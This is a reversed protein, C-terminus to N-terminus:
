PYTAKEHNNKAFIPNTNQHHYSELDKTHFNILVSILVYSCTKFCTLSIQKFSRLIIKKM